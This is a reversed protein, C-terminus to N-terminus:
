ISKCCGDAPPHLSLPHKFTFVLTPSVSGSFKRVTSVYDFWTALWKQWICMSHRLIGAYLTNKTNLRGRIPNCRKQSLEMIGPLIGWQHKDKHFPSTAWTNGGLKRCDKYMNVADLSFHISRVLVTRDRELGKEHVEYVEPWCARPESREARGRIKTSVEEMGPSRSLSHRGYIIYWVCFYSHAALWRDLSHFFTSIDWCPVCNTVLVLPTKFHVVAGIAKGVKGTCSYLNM